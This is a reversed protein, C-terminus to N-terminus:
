PELGGWISMFYDIDELAGQLYTLGAVTQDRQVTMQQIRGLLEQRRAAMKRGFPTSDNYGYLPPPQALDSEHPITVAIGRQIALSIFYHGGPRQLIYEDKSAMDVGFLGIEKADNEMAYAIMWAFTSTFFYRGYKAVMEEKPYRVARPILKNDQAVIPFTQENLWKIYPEGYHRHEPWLLNNHMEFWADVRPLQNMNGPSSGWIAWSPDAFPALGRSSPATGIIAVKEAKLPDKTSRNPPLGQITATFPGMKSLIDTVTPTIKPTDLVASTTLLTVDNM